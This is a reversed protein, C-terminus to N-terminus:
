FEDRREPAWRGDTEIFPGAKLSQKLRLALGSRSYGLEAARRHTEDRLRDFDQPGEAQLLASIWATVEQNTAAAAPRRRSASPAGSLAKLASRVQELEGSLGKCSKKAEALNDALSQEENQLRERIEDFRDM